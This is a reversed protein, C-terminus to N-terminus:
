EQTEKPGSEPKTKKKAATKAAPSAAARKTTKTKAAPKKAAPKAKKPAPTKKVAGTGGKAVRKAAKTEVPETERTTEKKKAEKEAPAKKAREVISEIKVSTFQQRHGTKKRYMKRRKFKLVKIKAGKGHEIITGVVQAGDVLPSGFSAKEEDGIALVEDFVVQDGVEGKLSEVEILDGQQLRYQKGGTSIVAYM